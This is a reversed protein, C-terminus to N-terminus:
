LRVALQTYHLVVKPHNDPAVTLVDGILSEIQGLVYGDGPVYIMLKSRTEIFDQILEVMKSM